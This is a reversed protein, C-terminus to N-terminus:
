TKENSVLLKRIRKIKSEVTRDIANSLQERAWYASGHDDFRITICWSAIDRLDDNPRTSSTPSEEEWPYGQAVTTDLDVGGAAKSEAIPSRPSSPGSMSLGNSAMSLQSSAVLPKLGRHAWGIPKTKPSRVIIYMLLPDNYGEVFKIKHLPSISRTIGKGVGSVEPEALILEGGGLVMYAPQINTAGNRPSLVTVRILHHCRSLDIKQNLKRTSTSLGLNALQSNNKGHLTVWLLRLIMFSRIVCRTNELVSFPQRSDLPLLKKETVLNTSCPILVQSKTMLSEVVLPGECLSMWEGEFMEIFREPSIETIKSDLQTEFRRVAGMYAEDLIKSHAESLFTNGNGEFFTLEIVLKATARQTLTCVPPDRMLLKILSQVIGFPYVVEESSAQRRPALGIRELVGPDLAANNILSYIICTAGLCHREDDNELFGLLADRIPNGSDFLQEEVDDGVLSSAGDTEDGGEDEEVKKEVATPLSKNAQKQSSASSARRRVAASEEPAPLFLTEAIRNVMKPNSFAFCSHALLFLSLLSGASPNDIETVSSKDLSAEAFDKDTLDDLELFPRTQPLLSAILLPLFLYAMTIDIVIDEIGEVQLNLIDELYLFHDQMESLGVELRLLLSGLQKESMSDKGQRQYYQGVQSARLMLLHLRRCRRHIFRVVSEIYQSCPGRMLFSCMMEDQVKFVNLTITRVATRVMGEPHDFLKIAEEFLPFTNLHDNFFFQITKSNLKLSLTKLFSIYHGLVEENAFNFPHVILRNVHNNSLTYYLSIESRINQVLISVSQIVQVQLRTECNPQDILGLFLPLMNKECFYDFLQEAHQDGYVIVEAIARVTEVLVDQNSATLEQNKSLTTYRRCGHNFFVCVVFVLV